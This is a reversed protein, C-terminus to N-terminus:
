ALGPRFLDASGNAALERGTAIFLDLPTIMPVRVIRIEIRAFIVGLQVRAAHLDGAHLLLDRRLEQRHESVLHVTDGGGGLRGVLGLGLRATRGALEGRGARHDSIPKIDKAERGSPHFFIKIIDEGVATLKITEQVLIKRIPRDRGVARLPGALDNGPVLLPSMGSM